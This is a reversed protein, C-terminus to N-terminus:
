GGLIFPNFERDILYAWTSGALSPIPNAWWGFIVYYRKNSYKYSVEGNPLKMKLTELGKRMQSADTALAESWDPHSARYQASLIKATLIAGFSWDSSLIDHSDTFGVGRLTGDEYYGARAKTQQWIKYAAGEGFQRDIWGSQLVAIGWTQCDVAFDKSPAFEGNTYKGGQYFVGEEKNFSYEKFYNEIKEIMGSLENTLLGDNNQRAVQQLMRLAALVSINNENSIEHPDKDFTGEPAHYIAGLPSQMAKLAPLISLALKVEPSDLPIAGKYKIYATQLPGIIAAWANEGTIPKWDEHHLQPSNPFGAFSDKGDLPDSMLYRNGFMRFFYAQDADLKVGNYTFYQSTAKISGIAGSSGSLLRQTWLDAQDTQQTLAMTMQWMAADYINVSGAEAFGEEGVLLREIIESVDDPRSGISKWYGKPARYSLPLGEEITSNSIFKVIADTEKPDLGFESAASVPAQHACVSFWCFVVIWLVKQRIVDRM